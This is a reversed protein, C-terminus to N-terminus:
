LGGYKEVFAKFTGYRAHAESMIPEGELPWDINLTGDNWIIGTSYEYSYFNSAKIFLQCNDTLSLSGHAFGRKVYLINHREASLTLADWKGFTPSEKRVDVVVWIVEGRTATIVKGEEFPPLSIHLGRLTNKKYASQISEQVWEMYPELSELISKDYVRALYGRHDSFAEVEIEFVGKLKTPLVSMKM